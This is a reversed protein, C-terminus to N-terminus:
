NGTGRMEVNSVKIGNTGFNAGGSKILFYVTGSTPFSITNGSGVCGISSLKGSFPANGCGTWTNLGIRTGGASYDSNQTPAVPSVYVEFWTDTAGSGSVTMDIKYEKGGVVQVPQYIGMHGGGGGMITASGPAFNWSATTGGITLVQWAGQGAPFKGDVILNGAAADSTAVTLSQTTVNQKGGRGFATHSITYNGADPLFIEEMDSGRFVVGDGADWGNSIVNAGTAKLTYRNASGAIPTITFTADVNPDSLGTGISEEEPTCSTFTSVTALSLALFMYRGLVIKYNM